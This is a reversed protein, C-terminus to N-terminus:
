KSISNKLECYESPLLYTKPFFNYEKPFHKKMKMLYRGLNNKRALLFMGPFHNIRQYPQMRYLREPQIGQDSWYIDFSEHEPQYGDGVEIM